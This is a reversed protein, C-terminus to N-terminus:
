PQLIDDVRGNISVIVEQVTPFQKLTEAIQSRIAAVRCSGGVAQELTEDFDARAVGNEITLSQLIIGPNLSTFYGAAKEGETPGKLLELLSTQGVTLTKVITRERDFVKQCDDGSEDMRGFFVKVTMKESMAFKIPWVFEVNNEPLGSPNDRRFILQGTTTEPESFTLEATFDVYNTTMWDDKATAISAAVIQGDADVLQIPFSAEFFWTSLARGTIILPSAISENALPSTIIVPSEELTPKNEDPTKSVILCDEEPKPVLPQGHKVWQGQDCLWTNEDGRLFFLVTASLIIIVIVVIFILNKKM